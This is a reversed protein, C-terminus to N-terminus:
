WLGMSGLNMDPEKKIMTNLEALIGIYTAGKM